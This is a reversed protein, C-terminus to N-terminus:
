RPAPIALQRTAGVVDLYRVTLRWGGAAERYGEPDPLVLLASVERSRRGPDGPDGTVQSGLSLSPNVGSSSGGTVGIGIGPRVVLGAGSERSLSRFDSTALREGRPGELAVEEIRTGPPIDFVVVEIATRGRDAFRATAGLVAAREPRDEACAGVLLVFALLALALLAQAPAACASPRGHPRKVVSTSPRNGIV